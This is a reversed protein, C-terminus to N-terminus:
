LLAVDTETVSYVLKTDIQLIQKTYQPTLVYELKHTGQGLRQVLNQASENNSPLKFYINTQDRWDTMTQLTAALLLGGSHETTSYFPGVELNGGIIKRIRCIGTVEGTSDNKIVKTTSENQRLFSTLYMSRDIGNLLHQDFECISKFSVESWSKLSLESALPQQELTTPNLNSCCIATVNVKWTPFQSFGSKDAYKRWMKEAGFLFKNDVCHEMAATWLTSGIANGRYEPRIYFLGITSIPELGNTKYNARTITGLVKGSSNEIAMYLCFDGAPFADMWSNLDEISNSWDLEKVILHIVQQWQQQSPKNVIHFPYPSM